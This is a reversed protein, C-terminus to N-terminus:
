ENPVEECKSIKLMINRLSDATFTQKRSIRVTKTTENEIEPYGLLNHWYGCHRTILADPSQSLWDDENGPMEFVVLLCPKHRKQRLDNYNKIPLTFRFEDGKDLM